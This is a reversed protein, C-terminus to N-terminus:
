PQDPMTDDTLDFHKTSREDEAEAEIIVSDPIDIPYTGFEVATDIMLLYNEAILYDPCSHGSM